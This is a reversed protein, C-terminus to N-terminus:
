TFGWLNSIPNDKPVPVPPLPGIDAATGVGAWGQGLLTLVGSLLLSWCAIVRIARGMDEQGKKFIGELASLGCGCPEQIMEAARWTQITV